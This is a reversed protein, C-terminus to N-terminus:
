RVTAIRFIPRMSLRALLSVKHIRLSTASADKSSKEQIMGATPSAERGSAERALTLLAHNISLLLGCDRWSYFYHQVTTAPPFIDPPLMRWPLGGRLLYLLAEMIQRHTWIPPRGLLSRAPLLPELVAWETDTLNSPLRLGKRAFQKRTTDTWMTVEM